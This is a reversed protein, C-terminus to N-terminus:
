SSSTTLLLGSEICHCPSPFKLFRRKPQKQKALRHQPRKQVVGESAKPVNSPQLNTHYGVYRTNGEITKHLEEIAKPILTTCLAISTPFVSSSSSPHM